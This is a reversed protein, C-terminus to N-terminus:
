KEYVNYIEENVKANFSISRREQNEKNKFPYVLHILYNPFLYFDGVQPTISFLPSSMFQRSGHLLQLKGNFNDKNKQITDGFDPIKLFGAGSIHGGHWHAPNYENEFQRVIWSDILNFETIKKQTVHSVYFVSVESLFKFWGSSELIQADLRIEEKVNGALRHGMQNLKKENISKDFHDNLSDIIRKPIKVKAISPGFPKIININEM